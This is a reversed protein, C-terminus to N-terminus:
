NNRRWYLFIGAGITLEGLCFLFWNFKRPIFELALKVMDGSPVSGLQKFQYHELIFASYDWIFSLILIVSGLIFMFWEIGNIKANVKKSDFYVILIALFIMTLSVIIPTIVPGVWTTPILFLIDWTMWTQPWGLLLKLFIYYFIDWIAFTYLFWAFRSISSKGALVGVGILMILTASERLIETLAMFPPIPVLPFAFGQPYLLIRLYVVVTNELFGMAIAFITVWVLTKWPFNKTLM